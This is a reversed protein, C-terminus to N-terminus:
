ILWLLRLLVIKIFIIEILLSQTWPTNSLKFPSYWFLNKYRVIDSMGLFTTDQFINDSTLSSFNDRWNSFCVTENLSEYRFCLISDWYYNSVRLDVIIDTLLWDYKSNNYFSSVPVNYVSRNWAHSCDWFDSSRCYFCNGWNFTDICVNNSYWIQSITNNSVLMYYIKNDHWFFATQSEVSQYSQNAYLLNYREYDIEQSFIFKM